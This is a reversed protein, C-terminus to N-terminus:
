FFLCSVRPELFICTRTNPISTKNETSGRTQSQLSTCHIMFHENTVPFVSVLSVMNEARVSYLHRMKNVCLMGYHGAGLDCYGQTHVAHCKGERPQLLVYSVPIHNQLTKLVVSM